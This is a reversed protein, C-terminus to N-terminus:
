GAERLAKAASALLDGTASEETFAHGLKELRAILEARKLPHAVPILQLSSSYGHPAGDDADWIIALEADPNKYATGFIFYRCEALLNVTYGGRTLPQFRARIADLHNPSSALMAELEMRVKSSALPILAAIWDIAEQSITTM